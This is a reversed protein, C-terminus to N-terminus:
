VRLMPLPHPSVPPEGVAEEKKRYFYFGRYLIDLVHPKFRLIENFVAMSSCLRSAGGQKAPRICLLGVVDAFDSHFDIEGRGRTTDHLTHFNQTAYDGPSNM